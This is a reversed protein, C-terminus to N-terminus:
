GFSDCRSTRTLSDFPDVVSGMHCDANAVQAVCFILTLDIIKGHARLHQPVVCHRNISKDGSLVILHGLHRREETGIFCNVFDEGLNPREKDSRSCIASDDTRFFCRGVSASDLYRLEDQSM